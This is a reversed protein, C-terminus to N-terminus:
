RESERQYAELVLRAVGSYLTVTPVDSERMRLRLRDTFWYRDFIAEEIEEWPILLPPHHIRFLVFVHLFLGQEGWGVALVGNYRAGYGIVGSEFTSVPGHYTGRLPYRRAIKAWGFEAILWLVLVWFLPFLVLPLFVWANEVQIVDAFFIPNWLTEM